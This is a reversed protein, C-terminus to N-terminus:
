LHYFYGLYRPFDDDGLSLIRSHYIACFLYPPILSDVAKELTTDRICDPHCWTRSNRKHRIFKDQVRKRVYILITTSTPMHVDAKYHCILM